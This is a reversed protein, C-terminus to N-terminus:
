RSAAIATPNPKERGWDQGGIYPEKMSFPYVMRFIQPVQQHTQIVRGFLNYLTVM